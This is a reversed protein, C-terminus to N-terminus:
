RGREVLLLFATAPMRVAGDDDLFPALAVELRRTADPAAAGADALALELAAPLSTAM